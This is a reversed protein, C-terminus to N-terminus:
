IGHSLSLLMELIEADSNDCDLKGDCDWAISLACKATAWAIQRPAPVDLFEEALDALHLVREPKMIQERADQPNRFANALEFGPDGLIGKADIARDGNPTCIVNDHHFDGHLAVRRKTTKLLSQVLERARNINDKLRDPCDSGFQLNQLDQFWAELDHLGTPPPTLNAHIKAALAALRRNAAADEGARSQDGLTPGELWELVLVRNQRAYVKAADRGDLTRMWVIGPAEDELDHRHYLKVAAAADDAREIKWIEAIHTTVIHQASQIEDATLIEELENQSNLDLALM